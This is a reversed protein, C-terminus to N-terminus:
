SELELWRSAAVELSVGLSFREASGLRNMLSFLLNDNYAVLNQLTKYHSM